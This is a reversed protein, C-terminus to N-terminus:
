EGDALHRYWQKPTPRQLNEAYGNLGEVKLKGKHGIVCDVTEPADSAVDKARHRLFLDLLDDSDIIESVRMGQGMQKFPIRHVAFEVAFDTVVVLVDDHATVFNFDELFAIRRVQRPFFQVDINHKFRGPKEGAAVFGLQM